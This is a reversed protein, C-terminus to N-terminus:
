YLLSKAEREGKKWLEAVHVAPFVLLQSSDCHLRRGNGEVVCVTPWRERSVNGWIYHHWRFIPSSSNRIFRISEGPCTSKELSTHQWSALNKLNKNHILSKACKRPFFLTSVDLIYRYDQFESESYSLKVSQSKVWLTNHDFNKLSCCLITFNTQIGRQLRMHYSGTFQQLYGSCHSQTVTGNNKDISHLPHTWLYNLWVWMKIMLDVATEGEREKTQEESECRTVAPRAPLSWATDRSWCSRYVSWQVATCVLLPM